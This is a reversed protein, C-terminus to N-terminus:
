AIRPVALPPRLDLRMCVVRRGRREARGTAHFGFRGYLSLAKANAELVELTLSSLGLRCAAFLIAHGLLRSGAGRGPREPNGYIGFAAQDRTSATTFRVVGLYGDGARVLYYRDHPRVALQALFAQHRDRDVTATDFMWRRVTPHNRWRRVMEAQDPTMALFDIFAIRDAFLRPPDWRM